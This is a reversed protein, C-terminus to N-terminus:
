PATSPRGLQLQQALDFDQTRALTDEDLEESSEDLDEM